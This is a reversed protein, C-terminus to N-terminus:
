DTVLDLHAGELATFSHILFLNSFFDFLSDIKLGKLAVCFCLFIKIKRVPSVFNKSFKM